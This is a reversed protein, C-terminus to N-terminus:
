PEKDETGFLATLLEGPAFSWRCRLMQQALAPPQIAREVFADSVVVFQGTRKVCRPIFEWPDLGRERMQREYSMGAFRTNHAASGGCQDHAQRWADREREMQAFDSEDAAGILIVGQKMFGECNPCPRMNIVGCDRPLSNRLRTDFLLESSEGCYFCRTLGVHSLTSM